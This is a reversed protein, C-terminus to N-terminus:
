EFPIPVLDPQIRRLIRCEQLLEIVDLLVGPRFWDRIVVVPLLKGHWEPLLAFYNQASVAQGEVPIGVVHVVLQNEM